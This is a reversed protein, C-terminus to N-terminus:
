DMQMILSNKTHETHVANNTLCFIIVSVDTIIRNRRKLSKLNTYFKKPTVRLSLSQSFAQPDQKRFIQEDGLGKRKFILLNSGLSKPSIPKINIENCSESICCFQM